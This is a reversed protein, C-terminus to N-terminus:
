RDVGCLAVTLATIVAFGVFSALEERLVPACHRRLGLLIVAYNALPALAIVWMAEYLGFKGFTIFLGVGLFALKFTNGMATFRTTGAAFLMVAALATFVELAWQMGLLKLMWGAEAYKQGLLLRVIFTGGTIFGISMVACLVFVLRRTKKYHEFAEEQNERFSNSMMPFFVQTILEQVGRGVAGSIALALSFCGLLILDVFKGVVLRVAEGALFYTATSVFIGAGFALIDRAAKPDWTLTVPYEAIAHSWVTRAVTAAVRGVVLAWATPSIVAWIVAVLLGCVESGTTLITLEKRRVHRTLTWISASAFSDVLVSLSGVIALALVAPQKYFIAFPYALGCAVLWIAFGRIVQILFATNLFAVDDGREHQVVDMGIGLDSLLILGSLFVSVLAVLGFAEPVVMRALIVTSALRVLQSAGYGAATWASGRVATLVRGSASLGGLGPIRQGLRILALELGSAQPELAPQGTADGSINAMTTMPYQRFSPVIASNASRRCVGM